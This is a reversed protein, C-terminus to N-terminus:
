SNKLDDGTLAAADLGFHDIYAQTVAELGEDDLRGILARMESWTAPQFVPEGDIETVSFAIAAPGIVAENKCGEPGVVQALDVRNLANLKRVKITRGLSDTVEVSKKGGAQPATSAAGETITLKTM